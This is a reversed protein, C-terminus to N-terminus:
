RRGSYTQSSVRWDVSSKWWILSLRFINYRINIGVYKGTYDRSFHERSGVKEQFFQRCTQRCHTMMQLLENYNDARCLEARDSCDLYGDDCGDGEMEVKATRCLGVGVLLLLM